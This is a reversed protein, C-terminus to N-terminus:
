QNPKLLWGQLSATHYWQYFPIDIVLNGNVALYCYKPLIEINDIVVSDTEKFILKDQINATHQKGNVVIELLLETGLLDLFNKM